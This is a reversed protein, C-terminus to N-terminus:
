IFKLNPRTILLNNVYVLIFYNDKKFVVSDLLYLSFYIRPAQKLRYLVKKLKYVKGKVKFGLPLNVYIEIDIDSYLFTTKIDI